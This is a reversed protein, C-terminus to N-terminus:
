LSKTTSRTVSSPPTQANDANKSAAIDSNPVVPCQIQYCPETKTSVRMAAVTEALLSLKKDITSLDVCDWDSCFWKKSIHKCIAIYAEIPPKTEPQTNTPYM